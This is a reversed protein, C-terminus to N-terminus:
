GGFFRHVIAASGADLTEEGEAVVLYGNARALLSVSFSRLPLPHAVWGAAEHQVAVPVYWTWGKRTEVPAALRAQFTAPVIPAGCLLSLIPTGVAELMMLASTPNGPLGVIPKGRHAGLLTPKGPKVRLGHVVVGPDGLAAVADPLRDREGVSSGGSVVVADCEDLAALIATELSAAEDNVIPRHVPVTGLTELAAAIAYRNSDRVEGASPDSSPDVLEDGTSVIAVRPKRYVPVSTVGLAALLGIQPAGIRRGAELVRNGARMDAGTPIVNERAKAAQAISVMAGESRAEEIPVVTDAGDPLVGGTPIRMASTGDIARVPARGMRVEGVVRLSGPTARAQLAFGDMASRPADPYDRDAEVGNALVRGLAGAFPVYEVRPAPLAVASFFAVLAQHPALLANVTQM